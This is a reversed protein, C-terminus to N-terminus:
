GFCLVTLFDTDSFQQDNEFAIKTLVWVLNIGVKCGITEYPFLAGGLGKENSIKRARVRRLFHDDHRIRTHQLSLSLLLPRARGRSTAM